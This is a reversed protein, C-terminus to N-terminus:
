PLTPPAPAPLAPPASGFSSQGWRRRATEGPTLVTVSTTLGGPVAPPPQQSVPQGVGPTMAEGGSPAVSPLHAPPAVGPQQIQPLTTAADAQPSLGSNRSRTGQGMSGAESSESAGARVTATGGRRRFSEPLSISTTQMRREVPPPPAAASVPVAASSAFPAQTAYSAPDVEGHSSSGGTTYQVQQISPRTPVGEPLTPRDHEAVLSGPLLHRTQEGVVLSGRKPEFRCILSVETQPGGAEDWPLWFSYSSGLESDSMHLPVQDAPFVYRRTPRNDTPDRDSEDFAYVVLQGDVLIPDKSDKGYFLLRGGFGRQPAKGPQRLVADTWTGVVRTPIGVEEGHNWPMRKDLDFMDAFKWNRSESQCGCVAVLLVVSTTCCRIWRNKPSTNTMTDSQDLEDNVFHREIGAIM